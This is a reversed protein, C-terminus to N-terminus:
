LSDNSKKNYYSFVIGIIMLIVLVLVIKIDIWQIVQNVAFTELLLAPIKGFTSAFAFVVVNVNAFAAGLTVLGSPMFPIIRFLFILYFVKMNSSGELADILKQQKPSLKHQFTQLGKQYIILSVIAGFSEGIFSLLTGLWFGFVSINIVTLFYSPVFPFINILINVLISILFSFIGSEKLFGEIFERM